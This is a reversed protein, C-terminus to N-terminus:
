SDTNDSDDGAFEGGLRMECAERIWGSKSDGYELRDEIADDVDQPLSVKARTMRESNQQSSM